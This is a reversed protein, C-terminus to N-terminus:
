GEGLDTRAVRTPMWVRRNGGRRTRLKSPGYDVPRILGRGAWVRFLSGISNPSRPPPSDQMLPRLDDASFPEGRRCLHAMAREAAAVWGRHAAVEAYYAADAPHPEPHDETFLDLQTTVPHGKQDHHPQLGLPSITLLTTLPTRAGGAQEDPWVGM